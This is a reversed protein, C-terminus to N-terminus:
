DSIPFNEPWPKLEAMLAAIAAPDTTLWNATMEEASGPPVALFPGNLRSTLDYRKPIFGKSETTQFILGRDLYWMSFGIQPVEAPIDQLAYLDPEGFCRLIDAVTPQQEAPESDGTSFDTLYQAIYRSTPDLHAAFGKTDFGWAFDTADNRLLDAGPFHSNIWGEVKGSELENFSVSSLAPHLVDECKMNTQTSASCSALMFM